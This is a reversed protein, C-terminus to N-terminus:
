KCAQAKSFDLGSYAPADIVNMLRGHHDSIVM